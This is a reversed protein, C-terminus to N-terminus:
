HWLLIIKRAVMEKGSGTEGYIMVPVDVSALRVVRDKLQKMSASQGIIRSDIGERYALEAQTEQLSIDLFRKDVARKLSEILVDTDFPKEVFDYIGQKMAQVAISVEGYGTMLLVPLQPDIEHVKKAFQLGDYEPMRLDTLIVWPLNPKILSIVEAASEYARCRGFITSLLDVTNERVAEDDDVIIIEIEEKKLM